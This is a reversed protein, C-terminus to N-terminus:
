FPEDMDMAVTFICFDCIDKNTIEEVPLVSNVSKNSIVGTIRMEIARPHM